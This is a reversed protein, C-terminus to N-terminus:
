LSDPIEKINICHVTIPKNDALREYFVEAERAVVKKPELYYKILDSISQTVQLKDPFM